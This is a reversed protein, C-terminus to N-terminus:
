ARVLPWVVNETADSYCILDPPGLRPLGFGSIVDAGDFACEPRRLLWPDHHIDGRLLHGEHNLAYMAYRECLFEELTGEGVPLPPGTGRYRAGFSAEAGERRSIFRTFGDETGMDMRARDYPLHFLHRGLWCALRGPADLSFFWVGPVGDKRVYTRLNLEPFDTLEPLPPMGHLHVHAMRLPLLSLWTEDGYRDLELGSPVLPRILSEPVRWNVFLVQEWRQAAVWPYHHAVPCRDAVRGFHEDHDVAPGTL